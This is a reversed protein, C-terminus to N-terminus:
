LLEGRLVTVARGGLHVRDGRLEVRVRGGRASRQFGNLPRAGLREAWYPALVCHASGTVPDEDVGLAPAFFRSFFDFGESGGGRCTAILGRPVVRRLLDFRPALADLAASTEVEILDYLRSRYAAAVPM